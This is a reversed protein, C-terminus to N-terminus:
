DDGGGGGCVGNRFIMLKTKNVNVEMRWEEIYDLLIILMLQLGKGIFKIEFDNVYIAFLFPSLIEGQMLGLVNLVSAVLVFM